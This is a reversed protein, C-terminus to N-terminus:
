SSNSGHSRHMPLDLPCSIPGGYRPRDRCSIPCMNQRRINWSGWYISSKSLLTSGNMRRSRNRPWRSFLLSPIWSIRSLATSIRSMGGTTAPPRSGHEVCHPAPNGGYNKSKGLITCLVWEYITTATTTLWWWQGRPQQRSWCSHSDDALNCCYTIIPHHWSIASSNYLWALCFNCTLIKFEYLLFLPMIIWERLM